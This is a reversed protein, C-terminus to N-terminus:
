GECECTVVNSAVNGPMPYGCILGSHPPHGCGCLPSRRSSTSTSTPDVVPDVPVADRLAERAKLVRNWEERSPADKRVGNEAEVWEIVAERLAPLTPAPVSLARIIRAKLGAYVGSGHGHAPGEPWIAREVSTWAESMEDLLDADAGRDRSLRAVIHRHNAPVDASGM